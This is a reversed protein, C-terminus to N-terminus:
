DEEGNKWVGKMVEIIRITTHAKEQVGCFYAAASIKYVQSDNEMVESDQLVDLVSKILNDLDGRTCSRPTRFHSTKKRVRSKPKTCLFLIDIEITNKIADGKWQERLQHQATQKYETYSKPYYTGFKSVRPRPHPPTDGFITLEPHLKCDKFIM